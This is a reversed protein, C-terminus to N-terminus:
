GLLALEGTVHRRAAEHMDEVLDRVRRPLMRRTPYLVALTVPQPPYGEMVRVLRGDAIPRAVEFLPKMVLGQGALAWDTLVDGDDADVAGTVPMTVVDQGNRLTWRFQMSGPYRLLLCQHNMLDDPVEPRGFRDLYEPAACIVREIDAVKRQTFTSDELRAMRLAVDIAEQVLDLLHDSLRLRLETEPHTQRYTGVIPAIVKRGLGLPATLKIAGRPAGGREAVSAEARELAEMVDICREYYIRGAETLNMRRTTRTILRCGLHEELVRIRYSVVASSLRLVRGAESFSGSDVARMFVRINEFIGSM